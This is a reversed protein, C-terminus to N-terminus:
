EHTSAPESHTQKSWRQSIWGAVLTAALQPAAVYAMILIFRYIMDPTSFRPFGTARLLPSLTEGLHRDISRAGIQFCLIVYILHGIWGVVEFGILFPFPKEMRRRRQFMVLLGIVLASQMPLGGLILYPFAPHSSAVRIVLCDLAVVAVIAMMEAISFSPLRVADDRRNMSVIQSWVLKAAAVTPWPLEAVQARADDSPM